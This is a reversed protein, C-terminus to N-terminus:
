GPVAAPHTPNVRRRYLNALFGMVVAQKWFVFGLKRAVNLSARNSPDIIALIEGRFTNAAKALVARGAETAYGLGRAEPVLRWGFELRRRGEFDFWDVGAYGVIVGTSREIVPQKAFTLEAGRALMQDFRQNAAERTLVGGSFIMFDEDCFLEVFRARDPEQPLRVELRPTLVGAGPVLDAPEDGSSRVSGAAGPTGM